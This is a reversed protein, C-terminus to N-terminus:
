PLQFGPQDARMPVLRSDRLAASRHHVIAQYDESRLMDVLAQASPYRVLLVDDWSESEPGIVSAAAPGAFVTEGGVAQVCAVAAAVYRQYAERGSCPAEDEREGYDAQDRYALLNLMTIPTDPEALARQKLAAFQETTPDIHM